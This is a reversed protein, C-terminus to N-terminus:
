MVLCDKEEGGNKKGRQLVRKEGEGTAGMRFGEDGRREPIRIQGPQIPRFQQGPIIERGQPVPRGYNDLNLNNNFSPSLNRQDDSMSLRSYPNDSPLPQFLSRSEDQYVSPYNSNSQRNPQFQNNNNNSGYNTQQSYRHNIEGDPSVPYRQVGASNRNSNISLSPDVPDPQSHSRQRGAPPPRIPYGGEYAQSGQQQQQHQHQQYQQQLQQQSEFTELTHRDVSHPRVVEPTEKAM